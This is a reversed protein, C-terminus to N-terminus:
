ILHCLNNTYLENLGLPPLTESYASSTPIGLLLQQAHCRQPYCLQRGIPPTLTSLSLLRLIWYSESMLSPISCTEEQREINAHLSRSLCFIVSASSMLNLRLESKCCMLLYSSNASAVEDDSDPSADKDSWRLPTSSHVKKCCTESLIHRALCRM